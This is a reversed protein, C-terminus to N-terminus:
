EVFVVHVEIVLSLYAIGNKKTLKVIIDQAFQGSKLARQLHDLNIEFAVENNNLSEV